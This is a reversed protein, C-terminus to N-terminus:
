CLLFISIIFYKWASRHFSFYLLIFVFYVFSNSLYLSNFFLGALAEPIFAFCKHLTTCYQSNFLLCVLVQFMLDLTPWFVCPVRSTLYNMIVSNMCMIINCTWLIISSQLKGLIQPTKTRLWCATRGPLLSFLSVAPSCLPPCKRRGHPGLVILGWPLLFCTRCFAQDRWLKLWGTYTISVSCWSNAFVVLFVSRCFNFINYLQVSPQM